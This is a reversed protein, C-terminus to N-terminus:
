AILIFMKSASVTLVPVPYRAARWVLALIIDSFAQRASEVMGGCNLLEIGLGRQIISLIAAVVHTTGRCSFCSGATQEHERAQVSSINLRDVSCVVPYVRGGKTNEKVWFFLIEKEWLYGIDYVNFQERARPVVIKHMIFTYLYLIKTKKQRVFM